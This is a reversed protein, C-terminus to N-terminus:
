AEWRAQVVVQSVNEDKRKVGLANANAIGFFTFASQNFVPVGVGSAGQQVLITFGTDNVVTLQKCAQSGFPQYTNGASTTTASTNGGSNMQPVVGLLGGLLTALTKLRDLITNATPSAQVEGIKTSLATDATAVASARLQTDTLGGTTVPLPTARIQTDTLPGTVAINGGLKMDIASLSANGTDQKAATSAGTPLASSDVIHHGVEGNSGDTTSKIKVAQGTLFDKINWAM